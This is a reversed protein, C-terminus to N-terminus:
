AGGEPVLLDGLQRKLMERARFIRNKVTGIPMDLIRAIEDYRCHQRHRLLVLERYHAPLTELAADLRRKLETARLFQDPLPDDSAYQEEPADRRADDQPKTASISCTPVRKRRLWDIACNSAIRYLWTRFPVGQSRYKRISRFAAIFTDASLDEALSQDGVRRYLYGTIAQYHMRYLTGFAEPEAKARDVLEAEPDHRKAESQINISVQSM